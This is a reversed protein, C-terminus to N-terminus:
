ERWHNTASSMGANGKPELTSGAQFGSETAYNFRWSINNQLGNYMGIM